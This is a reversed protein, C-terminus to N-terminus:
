KVTITHLKNSSNSNKNIQKKNEEAQKSLQKYMNAINDVERLAADANFGNQTEKSYLQFSVVGQRTVESQKNLM